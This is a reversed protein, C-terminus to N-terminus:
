MGKRVLNIHRKVRNLFVVTRRILKEYIFAPIYKKIKTRFVIRWKPDPVEIPKSIPRTERKPYLGRGQLSYEDGGDDICAFLEYKPIAYRIPLWDSGNAGKEFDLPTQKPYWRLLPPKIIIKKFLMESFIGVMSIVYAKHISRNMKEDLTFTFINKLEIKKVEKYIELPQGSFWWSYCIYESDSKKMENLIDQYKAVDVLNIHDEVWFFVYDSNISPLMIKTDHFWGKESELMYPVLREQLYEHLFFLTKFKFKGRVNIVWKSANIDKMSRFSDQMRLFREEDNICFNAFITLTAM